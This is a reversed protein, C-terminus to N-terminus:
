LFRYILSFDPRRPSLPCVGNETEIYISDIFSSNDLSAWSYQLLLQPKITTEPLKEIYSTFTLFYIKSILQSTFPRQTYM